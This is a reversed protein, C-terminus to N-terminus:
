IAPRSSRTTLRGMFWFYGDEDERVLDGSLYWGDVFCQRYRAEDGLYSRFMSPWGPRLALEGPANAHAM